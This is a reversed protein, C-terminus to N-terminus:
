QFNLKWLVEKVTEPVYFQITVLGNEEKIGGDPLSLSYSLVKRKSVDYIKIEYPTNEIVKMRGILEKNSSDYSFENVDLIGMTFHHNSAVFIPAENVLMLCFLSVSAPPTSVTFSNQVIGLFKDNWFDYLTYYKSRELGLRDLQISVESGVNADWNFIALVIGNLCNGVLPLCWIKPYPNEFLDVPVAPKSIRPLCKKLIEVDEPSLSTFRDGIKFVGGTLATGTAWAIIQSRTLESEPKINWRAYTDKKGLFVCDQDPLGLHPFMYFRRAFNALSEVCGFNGSLIPSSWIPKNDFGIRISDAFKSSVQIPVMSTLFKDEGLGEKIAQLGKCMVEVKSLRTNRYSEGLLLHYVFDAEVLGDFGWEKSIRECVKKVYEYAEPITIDLIKKGKGILLNGRSNPLVLWNPHQIALTSNEPVTFLDIWLCVTMGKKHIHEVIPIFGNPFKEPDPEWDAPGREWGADIAFNTWGYRKLYKDVFDVEQLVIGENIKRHISTSWSDWGHPVLKYNKKFDNFVAISEGYRELARLPEREGLSFYITETRVSEGPALQVPPDYICELRFLIKKNKEETRIEVIPFSKWFELYGLLLTERINYDYLALNWASRRNLEKSWQPFDVMSELINGNDLIVGNFSDVSMLEISGSIPIIKEITQIEKTINTYFFSVTIFPKSPYGVVVSTFEEGRLYIGIGEGLNNRVPERYSELSKVRLRKEKEDVNKLIPNDFNVVTRGDAFRVELVGSRKLVLEYLETSVSSVIGRSVSGYVFSESSIFVFFVALILYLKEFTNM